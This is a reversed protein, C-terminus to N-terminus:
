ASARLVSVSGTRVADTECAAVLGGGWRGWSGQKGGAPETWVGSKGPSTISFKEEQPLLDYGLQCLWQSAKTPVLSSGVIMSPVSQPRQLVKKGGRQQHHM